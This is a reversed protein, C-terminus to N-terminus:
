HSAKEAVDVNARILLRLTDIEELHQQLLVGHYKTWGSIWSVTNAGGPQSLMADFDPQITFGFTSQPHSISEYEGGMRASPYFAWTRIENLGAAIRIQTQEASSETLAYSLEIKGLAKRIPINQLLSINGTSQLERVTVLNTVPPAVWGLSNLAYEIQEGDADNFNGERMAEALTDMAAAAEGNVDIIEQQLVVSEEMDSLLRELYQKEIIRDRQASSWSDAKLGLFIGVVVVALEILLTFWNQKRINEGIRHLIM